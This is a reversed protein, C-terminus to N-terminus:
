KESAFHIIQKVIYLSSKYMVNNKICYILIFHIFLSYQVTCQLVPCPEALLINHEPFCARVFYLDIVPWKDFLVTCSLVATLLLCHLSSFRLYSAFFVFRYYAVRVLVLKYLQVYM